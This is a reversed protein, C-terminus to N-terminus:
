FAVCESYCGGKERFFHAQALTKKEAERAVSARCARRGHRLVQRRGATRALRPFPIFLREKFQFGKTRGEVELCFWGREM